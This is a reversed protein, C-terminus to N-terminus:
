ACMDANFSAVHNHIKQTKHMAKMRNRPSTTKLHERTTVTAKMLTAVRVSRLLVPLFQQVKVSYLVPSKPMSLVKMNYFVLSVPKSLFYQVKVGRTLPMSLFQHVKM